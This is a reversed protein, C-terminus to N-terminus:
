GKYKVSCGYPKTKSKSVTKGAIIEDLAQRIYNTEGQDDIAGDYVLVGDKAIIFMHPTTAAGYTKGVKGDFDTIIPYNLKWEAIKAKIDSEKGQHAATSDVGLFVVNKTGYDKVLSTMTGEKAHNQCYPCDANFWELVVIKGQKTYDALTHQKGDTDKASFEPAKAGVKAAAATEGGAWVQLATLSAFL